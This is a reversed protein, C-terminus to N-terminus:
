FIWLLMVTYIMLALLILLTQYNESLRAQLAHTANHIADSATLATFDEQRLLGTVKGEHDLVPLHRFDQGHLRKLVSTVKENDRATVPSHSMIDKAPITDSGLGSAVVKFALDQETIIGHMRGQDDKIIAARDNRAAMAQAVARVSDDLRASLVPRSKKFEPLQALTMGQRDVTNGIDTDQYEM